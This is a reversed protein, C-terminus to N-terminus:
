IMQHQFSSFPESIVPQSKRRHFEKGSRREERRRCTFSCAVCSSGVSREKRVVTSLRMTSSSPRTSGCGLARRLTRFPAPSWGFGGVGRTFERLRMESNSGNERTEDKGQRRLELVGGAGPAGRLWDVARPVELADAQGFRTLRGVPHALPGAAAAAAATDDTAKM